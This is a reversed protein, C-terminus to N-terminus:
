YYFEVYYGCALTGDMCTTTGRGVQQQSDAARSLQGFLETLEPKQFRLTDLACTSQTGVGQECYWQTTTTGTCSAGTTFTVRLRYPSSGNGPFAAVSCVYEASAVTPVAVVALVSLLKLASPKM